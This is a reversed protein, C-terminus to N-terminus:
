RQAWHVGRVGLVRRALGEPNAIGLGTLLNVPEHPLGRLRRPKQATDANLQLVEDRPLAIEISTTYRM